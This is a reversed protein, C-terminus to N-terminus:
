TFKFLKAKHFWLKECPRCGGKFLWCQFVSCCKKPFAVVISTLSLVTHTKMEM